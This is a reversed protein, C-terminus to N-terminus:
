TLINQFTQIDYFYYLHQLETGVLNPSDLFVRTMCYIFYIINHQVPFPALNGKRSLNYIPVGHEPFCELYSIMSHFIQIIQSRM